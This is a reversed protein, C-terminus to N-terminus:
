LGKKIAREVVPKLLELPWLMNYTTSDSYPEKLSATYADVTRNYM